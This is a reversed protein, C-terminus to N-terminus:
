INNLPVIILVSTGKGPKSTIEYSGGLLNTRERMGLLGLTKKNAIENAIFGKGNDSISFELIDEKIKLFSKVESAASHRLVNTLSEQYIRFIGTALDPNVNVETVNSNFVCSIESRKEFEESQWEMAALLGLDDLISPRLETAIRRVTKVTLDILHITENIKLKIDNDQNTIKRGLWSIDMKLGTLQQGLEDHIERAIHTRETERVKELHTALQRLQEHSKNLAEEALIKQTVDNALVLRANHGEYFINHTIINVKIITGDKKKHDWVGAFIVGTGKLEADFDIYEQHKDKPRIDFTTMKLFEEKSYGYFEIAATNVDLFNKEPLSIMWMPMPNKNFLLRYKEESAKLAEQTKKRTTIDRVIGMFRGDALLKASIEVELLSGDKTRFVRENIAIKGALIEDLKPPNKEVEEPPMLDYISLKLLEEKTYGSLKVGNSNVDLLQGTLESIFIGDSAQEVITRYREESQALEEQSKLKESIDLGVGMLCTEGEYQIVRGTFYYPTKVANKSLLHAEVFDEGNIFVNAIKNQVLDKEDDDFLEIPHLRKIEETSYGTVNAFNNNWRYFHGEKNYLYFVGPLSNIIIDSLEKELIIQQENRKQETIDQMAGLMRIAAGNDDYIIYARDSITLYKDDKTRFRFEELVTSYKNQLTREMNGMVEDRDQPHLRDIFDEINVETGVPMDFFSSFIENGWIKNDTINWDWVADNTAKSVLLFRENSIKLAKQSAEIKKVSENKETVDILTGIIASKGLYQTLSGFVEAYFVEGNKKLGRLQYNMSNVSGQFRQSLKNLVMHRDEPNVIDVVSLKNIMEAETYGTLEALRPNVYAFKDSQVIYVGVMSQEVLSRFKAEAEELEKQIQKRNTVDHVMSMVGSVNGNEDKLVSNYWECYIIRGDKTINRIQTLGSNFKKETIERIATKVTDIDDQYVLTQLLEKQLYMEEKIWGFIEEARKSWQKIRLNNDFEVFGMPTNNIHYSLKEHTILLAIAANKKDTIDHYYVSIGDESPYILDEFWKGTQTDLLELRRPINDRKANQLADYFMENSLGPNEDWINKGILEDISRNHLEAAKKNVYTYNWNNDLAIFADTIREFIINLEAAKIKVEEELHTTLRQLQQEISKRETINRIVSVTGAKEGNDDIIASATMEINLPNGNKHFHILEGKWFDNDAGPNIMKELLSKSKPIKFVDNADKGLVEQETYGYLEKAYTNWNTIKNFVDTTIIPDSINRILSANFKLQKEAEIIKKFDRNTIYYATFLVIIFLFALLYFQYSLNKSFNQRQDSTSILIQQDYNQLSGIANIISDSLLKSEINNKLVIASDFGAIRRNEIVNVAHTAKKRLLIILHDLKKQPTVENKEFIDALKLTDRKIGAMGRYYNDLQDEDAAINYIHQGSDIWRINLIMKEFLLLEEVKSKTKVNDKYVYQLNNFAGWVLIIVCMFAAAYIWRIEINTFFNKM